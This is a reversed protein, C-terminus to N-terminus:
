YFELYILLAITNLGIELLWDQKKIDMCFSYYFKYLPM